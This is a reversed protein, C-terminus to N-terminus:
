IIFLLYNRILKLKLIQPLFIKHIYTLVIILIIFTWSILNLWIYPKFQPMTSFYKNVYMLIKYLFKKNSLM